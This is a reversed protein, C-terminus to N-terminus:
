PLIASQPNHIASKVCLRLPAARRLPLWLSPGVSKGSLFNSSEAKWIEQEEKGDTFDTFDTTLDERFHPVFATLRFQFNTMSFKDNKFRSCVFPAFPSEKM